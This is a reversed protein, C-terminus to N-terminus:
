PATKKKKRKTRKLKEGSTQKHPNKLPFKVEDMAIINPDGFASAPPLGCLPDGEACGKIQEEMPRSDWAESLVKLLAANEPAYDQKLTRGISEIETTTKLAFRKVLCDRYDDGVLACIDEENLPNTSHSNRMMSQRSLPDAPRMMQERFWYLRTGIEMDVNRAHSAIYNYRDELKLLHHAEHALTGPGSIWNHSDPWASPDVHVTFVDTGSRRVFDLDLLYGKTEAQREIADELDEVRKRDTDTATGKKLVRVKMRVFVNAPDRDDIRFITGDEGRQRKFDREKASMAREQAGTDILKEGTKKEHEESKKITEAEKTVAAESSKRQAKATEAKDRRETEFLAKLETIYFMPCASGRAGDIIHDAVRRDERTLDTYRQLAKIADVTKEFEEEGGKPIKSVDSPCTRRIVRGGGQQLTHTIEHALLHRGARTGPAYQGPAFAIHERLAYASAGIAQAARQAAGGTHLRLHGLNRGFRPEFWAREAAPLSMGGSQVAAAAQSAAAPRAPAAQKMQVPEEEDDQDAQRQLTRSAQVEEEEEEAEPQRQVLPTVPLVVGPRAGGAIVRDAIRDAEREYADGPRNLRYRAQVGLRAASKCAPCLDAEATRDDCKCARQVVQAEASAQRAHTQMAM